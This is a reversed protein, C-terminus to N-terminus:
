MESDKLVQIQDISELEVKRRFDEFNTECSILQDSRSGLEIKYSECSAKDVNWSNELEALDTQAQQIKLTLASNQTQLEEILKNQSEQIEKLSKVNEHELKEEDIKLESELIDVQEIRNKKEEELEKEVLDKSKEVDKVCNTSNLLEAKLNEIEEDLKRKENLLNKIIIDKEEEKKLLKNYLRSFDKHERLLRARQISRTLTLILNEIELKSLNEPPNSLLSLDISIIHLVQTIKEATQLSPNSNYSQVLSHLVKKNVELDQLILSVEPSLSKLQSQLAHISDQLVENRSYFEECNHAIALTLLISLILKM